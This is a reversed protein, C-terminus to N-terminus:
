EELWNSPSLSRVFESGAEIAVPQLAFGAAVVVALGLLIALASLM